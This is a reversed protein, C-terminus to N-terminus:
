GVKEGSMEQLDLPQHLALLLRLGPLSGPPLLQLGSSTQLPSLLASLLGLLGPPVAAGGGGETQPEGPWVPWDSVEPDDQLWHLTLLQPFLPPVVEWLFLIIRVPINSIKIGHWYISTVALSLWHGEDDYTFLMESRGKHCLCILYIKHPLMSQHLFNKISTLSLSIKRLAESFKLCVVDAVWVVAVSFMEHFRHHLPNSSSTQCQELIKIIWAMTAKDNILGFLYWNYCIWYKM